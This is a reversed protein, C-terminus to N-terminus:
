PQVDVRFTITRVPPQTNFENQQYNSAGGGTNIEPDIGTYPTWTKLNRGAVSFSLGNRARFYRSAISQPVDYRLTLERWKVFKADEIYGAPTAGFEAYQSAIFAAQSALSAHPNSLADCEGYYPSANQTRCRFYTTYNLQKNGARREFLTSVRFNRLLTVDFSLGQTNTPLSPGFYAYNQGPVFRSSDVRVENRALKGDGNADNWTIPTGFFAGAPYGVRHAQAGGFGIIIPPINQGLTVIHNSLTTATLRTALSFNRSSVLNAGLGFENGKNTIAGINQFVASNGNTLSYLGASPPLPRSILADKSKRNYYTYEFTVRDGALGADLGLEGETTRELKLTPNGTNSLLLASNETTGTVAANNGYSTLAAGFGPRQGAQGLAARFRLLSVSPLKPFFSEKSVVWSGQVQPFYALGSALGSNNDARVAGSIFLRDGFAFEQRAFGSVTRVDTYPESVAFQTATASCSSLGSPIAVGYCYVGQFLDRQLATGITSTSQLNRLLNFTGTASANATWLHQSARTAQRFGLIYSQALPLHFKPDLTQEDVRNVNDLGVNGNFRLWTLPTYNGQVGLIFRDVSQGVTVNRQDATNYGFYSGYRNGPTSVTDSEMGPVYQATGLFANILPSFISNDNNVRVTSSTVYNATVTVNANQGVRAGLNTRISTRDVDNPRLVGFERDKDASLLYTLAESGGSVNLGAKSLSGTQFPTTRPDRFQDFNLVVDQTCNTLGRLTTGVPIAARYNPCVDYPATSSGTAARTNLYGGNNIYYPQGSTYQTLAIWNLPYTNQDSQPGGEIYARYRPAGIRGRRTTILLVGNAAASGYIASAAPGKLVEVNEVDEFNIDNLRSYDQGGTGFGGKDNSSLVGDIYILPENSLSLSNAGRIRIRQSTGASGAASQLNVGAVKGQLVDSFQTIPGKPLSDVNVYGINTGTETRRQVQGTIANVTVEQLQTASAAITFNATAPQGATVTVALTSSAFGVRRVRVQQSGSPVGAIRFRGQQDTIAGRQTGVISVQAEAIPRGSGKDVVTGTVIGASQQAFGVAPSIAAALIAAATGVRQQM